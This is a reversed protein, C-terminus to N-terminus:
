NVEPWWPYALGVNFKRGCFRYFAPTCIILKPLFINKLFAITQQELNERPEDHLSYINSDLTCKPYHVHVTAGSDHHASSLRGLNEFVFLYYSHFYIWQFLISINKEM